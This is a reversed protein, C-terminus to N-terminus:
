WYSGVLFYAAWFKPEARWGGAAIMELRTRQLAGAPGEGPRARLFRYFSRFFEGNDDATPWRTALVSGAGAAIWARTLGMLGSASRVEASGSSCGSLVVLPTGVEHAAIEAPALFRPSADDALSLAIWGTRGPENAELVHTAFHIVSPQAGAAERWFREPSAGAGTLLVSAPGGWVGAAAQIEQASGWLRAFAPPQAARATWAPMRFSVDGAAGRKQWRPDAQNYIPDGLALLPGDFAAESRRRLMLAGPAIEITHLEAAYRSREAGPARLAAFPLSFLAEGPALIWRSAGANKPSLSGFITQYLSVGLTQASEGRRYVAAAFEQIRQALERRGPLRALSLGERSVDWRWSQQEGVQFGIYVSDGPLAARLQELAGRRNDTEPSGAAAEMSDLAARATAAARRTAPTGASIASREAAQLQALLEWYRAPLRKRWGSSQPALARLSAARNEEAADFTEAALAMNGTAQAVSNGADVFSAYMAALRSESTLRNADNPVVGARWERALRRATRLDDLAGGADGALLRVRGRQGYVDWPSNVNGPRSLGRVANDILPLATRLDGEEARVVALVWVSDSLTPLGFTSRLRLSETIAIDAQALKGALWYSEGLFRWAWAAAGLDGAAYAADIAQETLKEAGALDGSRGDVRALQTLLLIRDGPRYQPDVVPSDLGRQAAAAAASLNGLSQYLTTLNVAVSPLAPSGGSSEFLRRAEELSELADRYRFMAMQSGGLNNLFKAAFELDRVRLAERAAAQYQAIAESYKGAAYVRAIQQARRRLKRNVFQPRNAAPSAPKGSGRLPLFLCLFGLGILLRM